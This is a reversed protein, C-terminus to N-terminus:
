PQEDDDALVIGGDAAQVDSLRSGGMPAADGETGVDTAQAVEAAVIAQGEVAEIRSGLGSVAAEDPQAPGGAPENAASVEALPAAVGAVKTQPAQTM